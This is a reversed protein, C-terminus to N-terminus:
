MRLSDSMWSYNEDYHERARSLSLVLMYSSITSEIFLLFLTMYWHLQNIIVEEYLCKRLKRDWRSVFNIESNTLTHERHSSTSSHM